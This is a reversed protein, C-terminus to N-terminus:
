LMSNAKFDTEGDLKTHTRGHVTLINNKFELPFWRGDQKQFIGINKSIPKVDFTPGPTKFFFKGNVEEIKVKNESNNDNSYIGKHKKWKELDIKKNTQNAEVVEPHLSPILHHSFSESGKWKYVEAIKRIVEPILDIGTESNTM